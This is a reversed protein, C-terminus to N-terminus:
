YFWRNIDLFGLSRSRDFDLASLQSRPWYTAPIGIFQTARSHRSRKLFECVGSATEHSRCCIRDM